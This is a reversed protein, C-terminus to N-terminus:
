LKPNSFHACCNELCGKSDVQQAVYMHSWVPYMVNSDSLQYCCCIKKVECKSQCKLYSNNEQQLFLLKFETHM